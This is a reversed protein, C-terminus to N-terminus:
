AVRWTSSREKRGQGPAVAAVIIANNKVILRNLRHDNGSKTQVQMPPSDAQQDYVHTCSM